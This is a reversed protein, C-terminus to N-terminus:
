RKMSEFSSQVFIKNFLTVRNKLYYNYIHGIPEQINDTPAAKEM